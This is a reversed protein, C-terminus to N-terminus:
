ALFSFQLPNSNGEGPSRGLGPVSGPDRINGASAPPNRVVPIVQSAGRYIYLQNMENYLLFSCLMISSYELFKNVYKLSYLFLHSFIILM